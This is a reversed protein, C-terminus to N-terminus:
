VVEKIEIFQDKFKEAILYIAILSEQATMPKKPNFDKNLGDVIQNYVSISHLTSNGIIELDDKTFLNGSGIGPCFNQADKVWSITITGTDLSNTFSFPFNRCAQPRHDHITCLRTQTNFFTCINNDIRRLIFVGDGEATKLQNLVKKNGKQQKMEVITENITDPDVLFQIKTLLVSFDKYHAMLRYIDEHTLTVVMKPHTCCKGSNQCSFRNM